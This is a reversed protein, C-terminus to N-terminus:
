DPAPPGSDGKGRSLVRGIVAAGAFGAAQLAALAAPAREAPLAALLPGCTQPDILLGRLAAERAKNGAAGQLRVPGELLALATANAPALSSAFGQALLELAGPHASIATADLEVALAAESAALMEGLHGLLGFGTVDTCAEVGHAGLLDM